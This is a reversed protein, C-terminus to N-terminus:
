NEEGYRWFIDALEQESAENVIDAATTMLSQDLRMDLPGDSSFALGRQPNDMQDSSFGLDLLVGDVIEWGVEAVIAAMDAFNGHKLILRGSNVHDSFQANVRALAQFDADIGLVKGDPASQALIAATHGAGGLTGDIYYGGSHPQLYNLVEELLVSIHKSHETNMISISM